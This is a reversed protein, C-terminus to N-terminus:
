HKFNKNDEPNIYRNISNIGLVVYDKDIGYNGGPFIYVIKCNITRGTFTGENERLKFIEVLTLDDGVQFDRDNKRIEFTKQDDWIRNFYPSLTKLQHHM